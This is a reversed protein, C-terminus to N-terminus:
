VTVNGRKDGIYPNVNERILALSDQNLLARGVGGNWDRGTKERGRLVNMCIGRRWARTAM